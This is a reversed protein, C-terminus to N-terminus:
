FRRSRSARPQSYRIHKGRADWWELLKDRAAFDDAVLVADVPEFPAPEIVFGDDWDGMLSRVLSRVARLTRPFPRDLEEAAWMAGNGCLMPEEDGFRAKLGAMQAAANGVAADAGVFTGTRRKARLYAILEPLAKRAGLLALRQAAVAVVADSDDLLGPMHASVALSEDNPIPLYAHATARVDPDPDRTLRELAFFEDMSRFRDILAIGRRRLRPDESRLMKKLLPLDDRSASVELERLARVRIPGPTWDSLIYVGPWGILVPYSAAAYAAGGIALLVALAYARNRAAITMAMRHNQGDERQNDLNAANNVSFIFVAM